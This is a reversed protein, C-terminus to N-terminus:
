PPHAKALGSLAQIPHFNGQIAGSPSPIEGVQCGERQSMLKGQRQNLISASNLNNANPSSRWYWNKQNEPSWVQVLIVDNATRPRKSVEQLDQSRSAEMIAHTLQKYSIYPIYSILYILYRTLNDLYISISLCVSLCIRALTMKRKWGGGQCQASCAWPDERKHGLIM